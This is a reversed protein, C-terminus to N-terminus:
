RPVGERFFFIESLNKVSRDAYFDMPHFVRYYGAENPNDPIALIPFVQDARNFLESYSYVARYGDKGAFTVLGHRNWTADEAGVKGELLDKLAPGQFHPTPHYGMGMGYFTSQYYLHSEQRAEAAIPFPVLDLGDVIVEPSYPDEMERDIEYEKQDFSRVTINVPNELFRHAFLDGAAVVRWQEFVPYEVERRYPKIPAMRTAIMIQHPNITHFIESWSFVVSEGVANEIVVYLDIAPRFIEMNKKQQNFPHLLDFLSYGRYRYAGVLHPIGGEVPLAEKVVVEREYHDRLRVRGPSKIEGDVMLEGTTLLVEDTQHYLSNGDQAMGKTAGTIADALSDPVLQCSTLM